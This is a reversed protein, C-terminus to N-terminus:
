KTREKYKRIEKIHENLYIEVDQQNFKDYCDRHMFLNVYPRELPINRHEDKIPENCYFCILKM